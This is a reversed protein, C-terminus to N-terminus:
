GVRLTAVACTHTIGGSPELAPRPAAPRKAFRNLHQCDANAGPRALITLLAMSYEVAKLEHEARRWFAFAEAM